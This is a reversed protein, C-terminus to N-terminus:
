DLVLPYERLKGLDGERLPEKSCLHRWIQIFRNSIFGVKKIGDLFYKREEASYKLPAQSSIHKSELWKNLSPSNLEKSLLMM